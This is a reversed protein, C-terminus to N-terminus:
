EHLLGLSFKDEFKRKLELSQVGEVNLIGYKAFTAPTPLLFAYDRGDGKGKDTMQTLTFLEQSIGLDAFFQKEKQVTQRLKEIEKEESVFPKMWFSMQSEFLKELGGYSEALAAANGHFGVIGNDIVRHRGATFLYNACSSLCFGRVIVTVQADKLTMGIQVAEYVDGGTSDVVMYKVDGDFVSRFREFDGEDITGTLSLTEANGRTWQSKEAQEEQLQPFFYAFWGGVLLLMLSIM